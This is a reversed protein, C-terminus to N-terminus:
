AGGGFSGIEGRAPSVGPLGSPSLTSRLGSHSEVNELSCSIPPVASGEARGPIEGALPSIPLKPKDAKM